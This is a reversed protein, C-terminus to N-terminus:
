DVIMYAITDQLGYLKAFHRAEKQDWAGGSTQRNGLRADYLAHASKRGVVWFSGSSMGLIVKGDVVRQSEDIFADLYRRLRTHWGGYYM